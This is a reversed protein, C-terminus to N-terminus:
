AALNLQLTNLNHYLGETAQKLEKVTMDLAYKYVNKFQKYKEDTISIDKVKKM